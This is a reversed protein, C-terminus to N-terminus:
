PADDRRSRYLDTLFDDHEEDSPWAQPRALEDVSNIPGIGQRRALEEIPIADLPTPREPETAHSMPIVEQTPEMIGPDSPTKDAKPGTHIPIM